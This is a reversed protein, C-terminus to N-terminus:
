EYRFRRVRGNAGKNCTRVGLLMAERIASAKTAMARMAAGARAWGALAM